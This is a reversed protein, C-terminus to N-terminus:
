WVNLFSRELQRVGPQTMTQLWVEGIGRKGVKLDGAQGIEVAQRIMGISLGYRPYFGLWFDYSM